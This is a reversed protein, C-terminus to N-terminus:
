FSNSAAVEDFLEQMYDLCTDVSNVGNTEEGTCCYMAFATLAQRYAATYATTFPVTMDGHGYGDGAAIKDNMTHVIEIAKDSIDGTVNPEYVADTWDSGCEQLWFEMFKQGIEPHASQKCVMFIQDVLTWELTTGEDDLPLFFFGYDTGYDQFTSTGWTGEYYLAAQGSAFLEGAESQSNTTADPRAWSGIRAQWYELAEAFYPYDRVTAEGNMIKELMDNNGDAVAKAWVIDRLNIDCECGDSYAEASVSCVGSDAITQMLDLLETKTTPVEWGNDAFLQKNYYFGGTTYDIPFAYVRGNVSADGLFSSSINLSKIVENDTVDLILDEEILEAYTAPNGMIIEPMDGAAIATELQAYYDTGDNYYINNFTVNPNQATFKSEIEELANMKAAQTMFHFVTIVINEDTAAAPTETNAPEASSETNAPEATDAPKTSSACAVMAFVMALALLMVILKKM